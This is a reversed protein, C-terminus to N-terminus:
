RNPTVSRIFSKYPRVPFVSPSYIASRWHKYFIMHPTYRCKGLGAPIGLVLCLMVKGHPYVWYCVYCLRVRRPYGTAFMVYGLGAPIGLLLCLM